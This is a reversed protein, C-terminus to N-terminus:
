ESDKEDWNDEDEEQGTHRILKTRYRINEHPDGTCLKLFDIGTEMYLEQLVKEFAMKEALKKNPDKRHSRATFPLVKGM